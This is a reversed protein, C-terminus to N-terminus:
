SSLDRLLVEYEARLNAVIREASDIQKLKAKIQAVAEKTRAENLEQKAATEIDKINFSM